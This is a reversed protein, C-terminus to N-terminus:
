SNRDNRWLAPSFALLAPTSQRGAIALRKQEGWAAGTSSCRATPARVKCSKGLLAEVFAKGIGQAAGTVLAVKDKLHMKSRKASEDVLTTAPERDSLAARGSRRNGEAAPILRGVAELSQPRFSFQIRGACPSTPTVQM